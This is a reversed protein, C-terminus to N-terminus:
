SVACHKKLSKKSLDLFFFFLTKKEFMKILCNYVCFRKLPLSCNHPGHKQDSIPHVHNSPQIFVPSENQVCIRGVTSRGSCIYGSFFEIVQADM